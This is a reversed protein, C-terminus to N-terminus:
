FYTSKSAQLNAQSCNASQVQQLSAVFDHLPKHTLYHLM